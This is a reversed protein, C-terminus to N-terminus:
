GRDRPSPSTYLLCSQVHAYPDKKRDKRRNLPEIVDDSPGQTVHCRYPSDMIKPSVKVVEGKKSSSTKPTNHAYEIFGPSDSKVIGNIKPKTNNNNYGFRGGNNGGSKLVMNDIYRQREVATELKPKQHNNKNSHGSALVNEKNFLEDHDIPQKDNNQKHVPIKCGTAKNRKEKNDGGHSSVSFLSDM